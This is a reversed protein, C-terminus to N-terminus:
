RLLGNLSDRTSRVAARLSAADPGHRLLDRSSAPLVHRLAGGFLRALDGATAGQAGLGPALIPGNLADLRLEGPQNTAGVVVGVGGQPRAGANRAAAADVISQAVTGGPSEARQVAAGEPNSTRALVFVGRGSAEAATLAPELSGFGLYPSVTIADAALPSGDTLYATAYAAMTSGIDGRKVDLLVLAGAERASAVVRELVAVGASGYAEFFASQPKLVAVHEALAETAGLAFRELGSADAPLGWSEVLGPHPDIGACLPGREAVADALRKGFAAGTM